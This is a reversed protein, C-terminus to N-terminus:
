PIEVGGLAAPQRAAAGPDGACAAGAEARPEAHHLCKPEPNVIDGAMGSAIELNTALEKEVRARVGALRDM